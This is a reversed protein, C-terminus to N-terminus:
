DFELFLYGLGYLSIIVSAIFLKFSVQNNLYKRLIMAIGAGVVLWFGLNLYFLRWTDIPPVDSGMVSPPYDFVRVPFGGHAMPHILDDYAPSARQYSAFLSVWMMIIGLSLAAVTIIRTNKPIIIQIAFLIGITGAYIWSFPSFFLSIFGLLTPMLLMMVPFLIVIGIFEGIPEIIEM